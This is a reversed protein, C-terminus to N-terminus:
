LGLCSLQQYHKVSDLDSWVCWFTGLVCKLTM